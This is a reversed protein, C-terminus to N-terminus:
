YNGRDNANVSIQFFMNIINEKNTIVTRSMQLIGRTVTPFFDCLFCYFPLSTPVSLCSAIVVPIICSYTHAADRELVVSMGQKQSRWHCQKCCM